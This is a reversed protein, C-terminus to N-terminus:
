RVLLYRSPSIQTVCVVEDAKNSNVEEVRKPSYEVSQRLHVCVVYRNVASPAMRRSLTGFV